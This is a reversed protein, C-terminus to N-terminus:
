HRVFEFHFSASSCQTGHACPTTSSSSPSLSVWRHIWYDKCRMVEYPRGKLCILLPSRSSLLLLKGQRTMQFDTDSFASAELTWGPFSSHRRTRRLIGTTGNPVRRTREGGLEGRNQARFIRCSSHRRHGRQVLLLRWGSFGVSRSMHDLHGSGLPRTSLYPRRPSLGASAGDEGDSRRRELGSDVFAHESSFKGPTLLGLLSCRGGGKAGQVRCRGVTAGCTPIRLFCTAM